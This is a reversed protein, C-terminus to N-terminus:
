VADMIEVAAYDGVCYITCIHRSGNPMNKSATSLTVGNNLIDLDMNSGSNNYVLVAYHGGTGSVTLNTVELVINSGAGTNTIELELYQKETTGITYTGGKSVTAGTTVNGRIAVNTLVRSTNFDAIDTGASNEIFVSGTGNPTLSINANTGSAVTITGSTTNSNATLILAGGTNSTLTYNNSTSGFTGVGGGITMYHLNTTFGDPSGRLTFNPNTGTGTYRGIWRGFQRNANTSDRVAFGYVAPEDTMSAFTIDTRAKQAVVSQRDDTASSTVISRGTIAPQNAGTPTILAITPGSLIVSGTGNPTLNIAGNAGQTIVISGSTTGSNTNITLTGTGNTTLTAAANADGIRVRDCELFVDGTGDPTIQIDANAGQNIQISGSNTGDNTNLFLNGTGWTTIQAQANEDGIRVKDTILFVDGTTNPELTIHGGVGDNINIYGSNTNNNTSLRLDAAGNTTITADLGGIGFRTTGANMQIDGAGDPDIVIAGDAGDNIKISGSNTGENTNLTLDGPGFTTINVNGAYQGTRITDSLLLIDGSSDARLEVNGGAGANFYLRGSNTGNNTSIELNGLGNTTIFHDQNLNGVRTTGSAIIVKGNTDTDLTINESITVTSTGWTADNVSMTIPVGTSGVTSINGTSLEVTNTTLKIKGSGNPAIEVDGNSKSIIDYGNVDLDGGLQPTTDKLVSADLAITKATNDGTLTIGDTAVFTTTGNLDNVVSVGGSGAVLTITADDLNQFNTDLETFTLASGKVGRKVIVPKTM